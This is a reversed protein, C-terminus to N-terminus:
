LTALESIHSRALAAARGLPYHLWLEVGTLVHNPWKMKKHFTILIGEEGGGGGGCVCVCM